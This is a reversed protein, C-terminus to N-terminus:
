ALVFVYRGDGKGIAEDYEVGIWSGPAFHVPGVYKVVGRKMAGCANDSCTKRSSVVVRDGLEVVPSSEVPPSVSPTAESARTKLLREKWKAANDPLKMYAEQSLEYKAVQEANSFDLNKEEPSTM